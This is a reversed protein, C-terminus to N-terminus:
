QQQLDTSRMRKENGSRNRSAKWKELQEPTLAKEMNSRSSQHLEAVAAKKQEPLLDENSMIERRADSVRKQEKSIDDFQKDTLNLRSRMMKMRYDMKSEQMIEQEQKKQSLKAKQEPTLVSEMENKNEKIIAAKRSRYEKLTIKDNKELEAMQLQRDKRIDKIKRHQTDSLQLNRMVGAEARGPRKMMNRQFRDQQAQVQLVMSVLGLMLLAKM